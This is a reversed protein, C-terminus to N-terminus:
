LDDIKKRVKGDEKLWGNKYAMEQGNNEILDNLEVTRSHVRARERLISEQGVMRSKGHDADIKEMFKAKPPTIVLECVADGCHTPATAKTRFQDGCQQCKWIKIAM